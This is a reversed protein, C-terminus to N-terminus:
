ICVHVVGVHGVGEGGDEEEGATEGIGAAEVFDGGDELRM